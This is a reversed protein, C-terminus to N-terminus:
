GADGPFVLVPLRIKSLNIEASPGCTHFLTLRNGEYSEPVTSTRWTYGRRRHAKNGHIAPDALLNYTLKLYWRSVAYKTELVQVFNFRELCAM